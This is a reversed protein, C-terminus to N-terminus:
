IQKIYEPHNQKIWDTLFIGDVWIDAVYRIFTMLDEGAGARTKFTQIIIEKASRLYVDLGDRAVIGSGDPNNLEWTDINRLRVWLDRYDGVGQDILLRYTDGDHVDKIEKVRRVYNIIPVEPM